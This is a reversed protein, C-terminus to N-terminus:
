VRLSKVFHTTAWQTEASNARILKWRIETKEPQLKTQRDYQTKAWRLTAAAAGLAPRDGHSLRAETNMQSDKVATHSSETELSTDTFSCHSVYKHTAMLCTTDTLPVYEEFSVFISDPAWNRATLLSGARSRYRPATMIPWSGLSAFCVIPESAWM